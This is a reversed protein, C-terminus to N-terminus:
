GNQLRERLSTLVDGLHRAGGVVLLYALPHFGVTWSLRDGILSIVAIVRQFGHGFNLNPAIDRFRIAPPAMPLAFAFGLLRHVAIPSANVSLPALFQQPPPSLQQLAAERM